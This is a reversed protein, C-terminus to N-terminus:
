GNVGGIGGAGIQHRPWDQVNSVGPVDFQLIRGPNESAYRVAVLIVCGLFKM